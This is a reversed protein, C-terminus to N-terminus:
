EQIRHIYVKSPEGEHVQVEGALTAGMRRYFRHAPALADGVIIHFAGVRRAQFDDVLKRYLTDAVGSGRAEPAVALSLLEADPVGEPLKADGSYRLIELIRRVKAPRVLAPALALGLRLPSRLMRKYIPGMSTGGTIFGVVRGEREETILTVWRCSEHM